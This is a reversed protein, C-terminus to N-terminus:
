SPQVSATRLHPEAPRADSRGASTGGAPAPRASRPLAALSLVYGLIASGGYGVVPTPHNGLAAAAIVAMWVAGFVLHVHRHARDHRMGAIAPFLLLALGAVVAMGATAHVDFSSYLVQDVHSTAPLLDSQVVSLVFGAVGAALVTLTARDPRMAAVVASGALLAGAMARDPQLALAAAAVVVGAASLADRSRAFALMMVPLLILSPQIALGSVSVWRAAGDVRIGFLATAALAAAFMLILVGPGYRANWVRGAGVMNASGIALLGILLAAVNTGLYALPAGAASLYFLGFM